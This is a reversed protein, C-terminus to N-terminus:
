NNGRNATSVVTTYRYVPLSTTEPYAPSSVNTKALTTSNMERVQAFTMNYSNKLFSAANAEGIYFSYQYGILNTQIWGSEYIRMYKNHINLEKLSVSLTVYSGTPIASEGNNRAGTASLLYKKIDAKNQNNVPFATGKYLTINGYSVTNDYDVADLFEGLTAPKYSVNFYPYIKSDGNLKVGIAFEKDFGSLTYIDAATAHEKGGPEYGKIKMASVTKTASRGTAHTENTNFPYVYERGDLTVARFQGPLSREDWSRESAMEAVAATTTRNKTAQPKTTTAAAPGVKADNETEPMIGDTDESKGGKVTKGITIDESTATDDAKKSSKGTTEPHSLTVAYASDDEISYYFEESDEDTASATAAVQEVSESKEYSVISNGKARVVAFVSFGVCALAFSGVATNKIKERRRRMYVDREAMVREFTEDYTKM